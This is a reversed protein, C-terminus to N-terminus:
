GGIARKIKLKWLDTRSVFNHYPHQDDQQIQELLQLAKDYNNDGLYAMAQYYDIEPKFYPTILLQNAKRAQELLGIAPKYQNLQLHAVANLFLDPVTKRTLTDGQQVVGAFDGSRYRSELVSPPADTGRTSTLEYGVFNGVYLSRGNITTLQYAAFGVLILLVSAAIRLAWGLHQRPRSNLPIVKVETTTTEEDTPKNRFQDMFERHAEKVEARITGIQVARQSLTLDDLLQQLQPDHRLDRELEARQDPPLEHNLYRDLRDIPEM